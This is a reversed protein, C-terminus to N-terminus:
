ARRRLLLAGIAGAAVVAVAVAGTRSSRSRLTGDDSIRQAHWALVDDAADSVDGPGDVRVKLVYIDTGVLRHYDVLAVGGIGLPERLAHVEGFGEVDYRRGDVPDAARLATWAARAHDLTDFRVGHAFVVGGGREPLAPPRVAVAETVWEGLAPDIEDLWAANGPMPQPDLTEPLVVVEALAVSPAASAPGGVGLAVPVVLVAVVGRGRM